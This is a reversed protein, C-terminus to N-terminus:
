RPDPADTDLVMGDYAPEVGKPCRSKLEDYDLMFSMHTLVAREPKVREIWGLVKELHAHTPHPEYRLCGVIWLKVGALARFASQPLEVVDTSYAADGIRFGLTTMFGHDQEFPLIEMGGVTFPSGPAIERDVLCPKSYAYEEPANDPLDFVYGFRKKLVKLTEADAYADLPEHRIRNISRLEDIGHVHDAHNHTYLVAHIQSVDADLLQERLDPSTDVLVATEGKEALISVRRRRNRPNEPDCAGWRRGILPVGGAGGCGLITIRMARGDQGCGEGEM